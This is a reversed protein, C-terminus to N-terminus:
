GGVYVCVCVCVCMSRAACVQDGALVGVGLALSSAILSLSQAEIPLGAQVWTQSVADRLLPRSRCWASSGLSASAEGESRLQVCLAHECWLAYVTPTLGAKAGLAAAAPALDGETRCIRLLSIAVREGAHQAPAKLVFTHDNLTFCFCFGKCCSLLWKSETDLGLTSAVNLASLTAIRTGRRM